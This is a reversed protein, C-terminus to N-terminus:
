KLPVMIYKERSESKLWVKNKTKAILLFEFLVASFIISEM